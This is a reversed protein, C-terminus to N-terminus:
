SPPPRRRTRLGAVLALVALVLAVAILAVLSPDATVAAPEPHHTLISLSM